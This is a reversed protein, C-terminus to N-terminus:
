WRLGVAGFISTMFVAVVSVTIVAVITTTLYGLALMRMSRQGASRRAVDMGSRGAGESM